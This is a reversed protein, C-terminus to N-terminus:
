SGGPARRRGASSRRGVSRETGTEMETQNTKTLWSTIVNFLTTKGSGNPGILSVLKNKSVLVTAGELAKVGGFYKHINVAELSINKPTKSM